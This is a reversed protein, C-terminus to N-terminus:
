DLAIVDIATGLHYKFAQVSTAKVVTDDLSNWEITTRNFFNHKCQETRSAQVTFCRDNNRVYNTVTNNTVYQSDNRTRIRRGAKQQTLFNSAPLAPVLGEVIKYFMLLRLQKRRDQLSPLQLNNLM